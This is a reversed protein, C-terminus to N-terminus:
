KHPKLYTFIIIEKLERPDLLAIYINYSCIFSCNVIM